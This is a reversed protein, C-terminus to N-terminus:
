FFIDFVNRLQILVCPTGNFYGYNNEYTCNTELEEVNVKCFQGQPPAKGDKCEVFNENGKQTRKYDVFICYQYYCAKM